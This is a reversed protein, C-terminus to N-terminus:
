YKKAEEARKADNELEMLIRDCRKQCEQHTAGGKLEELELNVLMGGSNAVRWRLVVRYEHHWRDPGIQEELRHSALIQDLQKSAR